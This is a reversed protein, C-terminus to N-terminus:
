MNIPACADEPALMSWPTAISGAQDDGVVLCVRGGLRPFYTQLGPARAVDIGSERAPRPAATFRGSRCWSSFGHRAAAASTDDPMRRCDRIWMTCQVLTAMASRFADDHDSVSADFMEDGGAPQGGPM